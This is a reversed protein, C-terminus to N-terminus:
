YMYVEYFQAEEKTFHYGSSNMRFVNCKDTSNM